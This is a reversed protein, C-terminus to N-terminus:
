VERGQRRLAEVTRKQEWSRAGSEKEEDAQSPVETSAGLVAAKRPNVPSM